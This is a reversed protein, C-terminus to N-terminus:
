PQGQGHKNPEQSTGETAGIVDRCQPSNGSLVDEGRVPSRRPPSFDASERTRGVASLRSGRVRPSGYRNSRCKIINHVLPLFSCNEETKVGAPSPPRPPPQTQPASVPPPPQPPPPKTEPLPPEAPPPLADEAQRGAAVGVSAM